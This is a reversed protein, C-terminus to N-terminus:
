EMIIWLKTNTDKVMISMKIINFASLWTQFALNIRVKRIIMFYAKFHMIVSNHFGVSLCGGSPLPRSDYSSTVIGIQISM